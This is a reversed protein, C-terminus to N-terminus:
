QPADSHVPGPQTGPDDSPLHKLRVYISGVFIALTAALYYEQLESLRLATPISDGAYVQKAIRTPLYVLTVLIAAPMCAFTPWFWYGLSTRPDISKRHPARVLPMIICGVISWIEVLQKPKRGLFTNINHFNTEDQRNIEKIADPAEWHFLHQGWSLEEGAFYVLALGALTLWLGPWRVPLRKRYRLAAFAAIIGPVLIVATMIEVPGEKAGFLYAYTRPHLVATLLAIVVAVPVLGITIWKPVDRDPLRLPAHPTDMATNM